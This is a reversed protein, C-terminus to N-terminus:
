RCILVPLQVERLVQDVVSGLVLSVLSRHGYGGIMVLDIDGQDKLQTIKEIVMLETTIYETEIPFRALYKRCEEQMARPNNLGLKSTLIKLSLGHQSGLYAAIYMAEKAKISGDYALLLDVMKTPNSPVTLIPVPCSRILTTIGSGLRTIPKEGPPHNLPLIVLDAFRANQCLVEGINGEAVLFNYEKVGAAQCRQSFETQIQLHDEQSSGIIREHIHLGHIRSSEAGALNIAQGLANWANESDDLAVILDSFLYERVTLDFLRRRWTGPPPGEEIADPTIIKIIQNLHKKIQTRLKPSHKERIDSLAAETGIDRQRYGRQM